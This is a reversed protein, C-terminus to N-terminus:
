GIDLNVLLFLVVAVVVGILVYEWAIAVVGLAGAMGSVRHNEKQIFSVIGAILALLGLGIYALTVWDKSSNNETEVGSIRAVADAVRDTLQVSASPPEPRIDDQFVAIAIAFVAIFIGAIGFKNKM